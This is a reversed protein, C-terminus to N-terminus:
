IRFPNHDLGLIEYWKGELLPKRKDVQILRGNRHADIAKEYVAVMQASQRKIDFSEVKDLAAAKLSERLENDQLVRVIAQALDKPDNETLLGDKGDRVVDSTGSADVAVVPLGAAMAEMTVLGQTESISAFSFLDAAALYEPIEEFPVLGPLNIKDNVGLATHSWGTTGGAAPSL